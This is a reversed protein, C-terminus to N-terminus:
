FMMISASTQYNSSAIHVAWITRVNGRTGAHHVCAVWRKVNFLIKIYTLVSFKGQDFEIIVFFLTSGLELCNLNLSLTTIKSHKWFLLTLFAGACWHKKKQRLSYILEKITYFVFFFLVIIGRQLLWNHKTSLPLIM